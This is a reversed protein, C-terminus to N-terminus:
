MPSRGDGLHALAEPSIDSKTETRNMENDHGEVGIKLKTSDQEPKM